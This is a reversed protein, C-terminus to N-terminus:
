FRLTDRGSMGMARRGPWVAERFKMQFESERIGLSESGTEVLSPTSRRTERARRSRTLSSSGLMMSMRLDTQFESESGTTSTSVESDPSSPSSNQTSSESESRVIMRFAEDLYSDESSRESRTRRLRKSRHMSNRLSTQFPSENPQMVEPTQPPFSDSAPQMTPKQRINLNPTPTKYTPPQAKSSSHQPPPNLVYQITNNQQSKTNEDEKLTCHDEASPDNRLREKTQSTSREKRRQAKTAANDGKPTPNVGPSYINGLVSDPATGFSFDLLGLSNTACLLYTDVTRIRAMTSGLGMLKAHITNYTELIMVLSVSLGLEYATCLTVPKTHYTLFAVFCYFSLTSISSGILKTINNRKFFQRYGRASLSKIHFIIATIIQATATDLLDYTPKPPLQQYFVILRSPNELHPTVLMRLSGSSAMVHTPPITNPTM